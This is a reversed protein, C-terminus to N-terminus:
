NNRYLNEDIGNEYKWVISGERPYNYHYVVDKLIIEEREIQQLAKTLDYDGARRAEPNYNLGTSKLFESRIFYSWTAKRDNNSWISGDNIKNSIFIMDASLNYLRDIVKNYENTYLYDDSDLTIIYEGDALTYMLNKSYGCGMNLENRRIIINYFNKFNDNAWKDVIEWTHDTSCDDIIMIQLDDRKPISNLARLVLDEQNYVPIMITVKIM